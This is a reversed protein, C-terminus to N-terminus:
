SLSHIGEKWRASGGIKSESCFSGEWNERSPRVSPDSGSEWQLCHKGMEAMRGDSGLKSAEQSTTHIQLFKKIEAPDSVGQVSAFPHFWCKVFGLGFQRLRSM